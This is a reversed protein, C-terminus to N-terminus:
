SILRTGPLQLQLQLQLHVLQLQFECNTACNDSLKSMWIYSLYRTVENEGPVLTQLKQFSFLDCRSLRYLICFDCKIIGAVDAPM